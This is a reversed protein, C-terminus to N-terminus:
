REGFARSPTAKLRNLAAKAVARQSRELALLDHGDLATEIGGLVSV